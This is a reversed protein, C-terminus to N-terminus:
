YDGPPPLAKPAHLGGMEAQSGYRRLPNPPLRRRKPAQEEILKQAIDVFGRRIQALQEESAGSEAARLGIHALADADGRAKEQRLGHHADGAAARLERITREDAM